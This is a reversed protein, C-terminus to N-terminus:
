AGGEGRVHPRSIEDREAGSAIREREVIAAYLEDFTQASRVIRGQREERRMYDPTRKDSPFIWCEAAGSYWAGGGTLSGQAALEEPTHADRHARCRPSFLENWGDAM